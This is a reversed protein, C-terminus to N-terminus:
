NWGGMDISLGYSLGLKTSSFWAGQFSYMLAAGDVGVTFRVPGAPQYAVGITGRAIPGQAFVTGVSATGFPRLGPLIELATPEFMYTAGLWFLVPTQIWEATRFGDFGSFTQRFSESGMEVGIRHDASLPITLSFATNPLLATQMSNPTAESSPVGSALSRFGLRVPLAAQPQAITAIERTSLSAPSASHAFASLPQVSGVALPAEPQVDSATQAASPQSAVSQDTAPTAMVPVQEIPVAPVAIRRTVVVTDVVVIREPQLREPVSNGAIGSTTQETTVPDSAMMLAMIAAGIVLGGTASLISPWLVSTAAVGSATGAAVGSAAAGAGAITPAIGTLPLTFDSQPPPFVADRHVAGRIALLDKMETRLQPQAALEDFLPQEHHPDLEGDLFAYLAEDPQMPTLPFENMPM